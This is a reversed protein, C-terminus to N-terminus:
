GHREWVTRRNLTKRGVRTMESVTEKLELIEGHVDVEIRL